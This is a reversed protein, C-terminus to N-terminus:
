VPGGSGSSSDHSGATEWSEEEQDAEDAAFFFGPSTM